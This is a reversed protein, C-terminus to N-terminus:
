WLLPHAGTKYLLDKFFSKSACALVIVSRNAGAQNSFELPLSFDMLGDHGVYVVLDALAPISETTHNSAAPSSIVESPLGAAANFFDILAQKIEKGEYADAILVTGTDRHEFISRELISAKPKPVSSIEKWEASKRFFARVGFAAGWYLNRAPDEGNGLTPPVPVIAQHENDALAVFVHVVRPKTQARARTSALLLLCAVCFYRLVDISEGSKKM